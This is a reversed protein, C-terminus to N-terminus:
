KLSKGTPPPSNPTAVTRRRQPSSPPATRPPLSPTDPSSPPKARPSPSATLLLASPPSFRQCPYLSTVWRTAYCATKSKGRVMWRISGPTATKPTSSGFAPSALPSITTSEKWSTASATKPRFCRRNSGRPPSTIIRGAPRGGRVIVVDPVRFREANVQVRVGVGSWFGRVQIRAYTNLASQADSHSIEGVHREELVGEVYDCDPHFTRELYESVPVLIPADMLANYGNLEGGLSRSRGTFTM